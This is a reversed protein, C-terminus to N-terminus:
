KVVVVIVCVVCGLYVMWCVDYVVVKSNNEDKLEKMVFLIFYM